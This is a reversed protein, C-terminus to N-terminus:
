RVESLTSFKSISQVPGFIEERFISMDDKCDAFVTPEVFYGVKGVRNGGTMLKAGESKGQCACLPLPLPSSPPIM